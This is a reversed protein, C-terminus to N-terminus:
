DISAILTDLKNGISTLNTFTQPIQNWSTNYTVLNSAANLATRATNLVDDLATRMALYEAVIDYAQDNAQDKAHQALGSTARYLEMYERNARLDSVVKDVEYYTVSGTQVRTKFASAVNKISLVARNVNDLADALTISTVRYTM